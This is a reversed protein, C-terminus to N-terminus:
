ASLECRDRQSSMGAGAGGVGRAQAELELGKGPWERQLVGGGWM